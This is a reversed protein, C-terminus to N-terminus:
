SSGVGKGVRDTCLGGGEGKGDRDERVVVGLRERLRELEGRLETVGEGELRETYVLAVEILLAASQQGYLGAERGLLIGIAQVLKQAYVIPDTRQPLEETGSSVSHLTTYLVLSVTWFLSMGHVRAIQTTVDMETRDSGRPGPDASRATATSRSKSRSPSTGPLSRLLNLWSLVRADLEWCEKVIGMQLKDYRAPEACLRLTDLDEM